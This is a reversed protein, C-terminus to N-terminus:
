RMGTATHPASQHAGSAHDADGRVQRLLHPLVDDLVALGDAVGGSSGPLNVVVTRGALRDCAALWPALAAAVVVRRRTM